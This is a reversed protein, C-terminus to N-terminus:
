CLVEEFKLAVKKNEDCVKQSKRSIDKLVFFVRCYLIFIKCDRASCIFVFELSFDILFTCSKPFLCCSKFRIIDFKSLKCSKIKNQEHFNLLTRGHNRDCPGDFDTCFSRASARWTRVRGIMGAPFKTKVKRLSQM